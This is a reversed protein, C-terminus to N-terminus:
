RSQRMRASAVRVAVEEWRECDTLIQATLYRMQRYNFSREEYGGVDVAVTLASNWAEQMELLVSIAPSEYDPAVDTPVALGMPFGSKRLAVVCRRIMKEFLDHGTEDTWRSSWFNNFTENKGAFHEYYDLWRRVTLYDSFDVDEPNFSPDLLGFREDVSKRGSYETPYLDRNNRPPIALNSDFEILEDLTARLMAAHKGLRAVLDNFERETKADAYPYGVFSSFESALAPFLEVRQGLLMMHLARQLEVRTADEIRRGCRREIVDFDLDIKESRSELFREVTAIDQYGLATKFWSTNGRGVVLNKRRAM